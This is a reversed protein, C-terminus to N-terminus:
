EEKYEGDSDIVGKEYLKALKEKNEFAVEQDREYLTIQSNMEDLREKLDHIIRSNEEAKEEEERRNIRGNKKIVPRLLFNSNGKSTSISKSNKFIDIIEPKAIIGLNKDKIIKAERFSLKETMFAKFENQLLTNVLNCIWDRNPEKTYEYDPIYQQVNFYESAFDIIKKVQLGELHPVKIVKVDSWKICLKDGNWISRLYGQNWDAIPPLFLDGEITLVSYLEKKSRWKAAVDLITLEQDPEM